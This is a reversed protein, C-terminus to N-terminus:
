RMFQYPFSCRPLRCEDASRHRSNMAEKPLSWLGPGPGSLDAFVRSIFDYCLVLGVTRGRLYRWCGAWWIKPLINIRFPSPQFETIITPIEVTGNHLCFLTCTRRTHAHTPKMISLSLDRIAIGNKNTSFQFFFRAYYIVTVM